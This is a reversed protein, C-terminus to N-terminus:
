NLRLKRFKMGCDISDIFFKTQVPIIQSPIIDSKNKAELINSYITLNEQYSNFGNM